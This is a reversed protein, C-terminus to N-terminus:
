APSDGGTRRARPLAEQGPPVAALIPRDTMLYEYTKASIRGGPEPTIRSPLAMFLLDAQRATQVAGANAIPGYVRTFSILNEHELVKNVVREAYRNGYIDFRVKGKLEPCRSLVSKIAEGLIVPSSGRQDLRARYHRGFRNWAQYVKKLVTTEGPRHYYEFWGTMGGIYVIRFQDPAPASPQLYDDPDAGYRILNFKGQHETPQRNRVREMNLRSVSIVADATQILKDEFRVTKRYHFYSPYSPHMDICTPSDDFNVILPIGTAKKLMTGIIGSSYPMMFAIIVDPRNSQIMRMAESFASNVWPGKDDPFELADGIKELRVKRLWKVLSNPKGEAATRIAFRGNAQTNRPVTLIDIDWEAPLRSLLKGTRNATPTTDPPFEYCIGLIRM